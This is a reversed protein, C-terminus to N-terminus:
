GSLEEGRKIALDGCDAPAAVKSMVLGQRANAFDDNGLKDLFKLLWPQESVYLTTLYGTKSGDGDADRRTILARLCKNADTLLKPM